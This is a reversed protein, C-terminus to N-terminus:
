HLFALCEHKSYHFYTTTITIIIPSWYHYYIYNIYTSSTCHHLPDFRYFDVVTTTNASLSLPSSLQYPLSQSYHNVVIIVLSLQSSGPSQHYIVITPSSQQSYLSPLYDFLYYFSASSRFDTQVEMFYFGFHIRFLHYFPILLM